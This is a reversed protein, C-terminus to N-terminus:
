VDRREESGDATREYQFTYRRNNKPDVQYVQMEGTAPDILRIELLGIRPVEYRQGDGWGGVLEVYYDM